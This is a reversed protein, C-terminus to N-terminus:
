NSCGKLKKLGLVYEGDIKAPDTQNGKSDVLKIKHGSHKVLFPIWNNILIHLDTGKMDSDYTMPVTKLNYDGDVSFEVWESHKGCNECELRYNLGM